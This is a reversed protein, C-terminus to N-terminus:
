AGIFPIEYAIDGLAILRLELAVVLSKGRIAAVEQIKEISWREDTAFNVWIDKTTLYPYAVTRVLQVQDSRVGVGDQRMSQRDVTEEAVWFTSADYYGGTFGTGYCEPCHSETVMGTDHDVCRTCIAGWQKRALYRGETGTYQTLALYEKRVIERAILFDHRNLNGSAQVVDSYYSGVASTVKVRYVSHQLKSYRRRVADILTGGATPGAVLEFEGNAHEAWELTFVYPGADSFRSDLWYSVTTGGYADGFLIVRDFVNGHVVVTKPTVAQNAM